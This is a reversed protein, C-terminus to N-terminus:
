GRKRRRVAALGMLASGAMALSAPEPVAPIYEVGRFATAFGSVTPSTALVTLSSQFNAANGDDILKVLRTSNAGTNDFTTAFLVANGTAPDVTGTLGHAGVTRLQTDSGALTTALGLRAIYQFVWADAVTDANTDEFTWKQVGGENQVAPNNGVPGTNRQDAIYLTTTNLFWYDDATELTPTPSAALSFGPLQTMPTTPAAPPAPPTTPTTPFGTGVTAVGRFAGSTPSTQNTASNSSMYLQGFAGNLIRQNTNGHTIATSLTSGKTTYHVGGTFFSVANPATGSVTTGGSSGGVWINTGDTSYASRVPQGSAVDLLGTTTDISEDLGIVGVVRQVPVTTGTGVTHTLGGMGDAAGSIVGNTGGLTSPGASQNYGAVILFRGDGSLTIAGDNNQTGSYTLAFTGTGTTNKVNPLQVSQVFVGAPTYEDLFVTAAAGSGSLASPTTIAGTSGDGGSTDATGGVSRTVVLNGPTFAASAPTAICAVLGAITLTRVPANVCQKLVRTYWNLKM